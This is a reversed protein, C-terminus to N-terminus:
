IKTLNNEYELQEQLMTHQLCGVHGRDKLSKIKDSTSMQRYRNNREDAEKRKVERSKM